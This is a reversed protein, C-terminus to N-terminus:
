PRSDSILQLELETIQDMINPCEKRSIEAQVAWETTQLDPDKLARITDEAARALERRHRIDMQEKTEPGWDVEKQQGDQSHDRAYAGLLEVVLQTTTALSAYHAAHAERELNRLGLGGQKVPLQARRWAM